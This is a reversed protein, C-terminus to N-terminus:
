VCFFLLLLVLLLGWGWVLGCGECEWRIFMFGIRGCCMIEGVSVFRVLCCFVEVCFICLILCFVDCFVFELFFVFLYEGFWLGLLM